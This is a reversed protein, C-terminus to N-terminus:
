KCPYTHTNSSFFYMKKTFKIISTLNEGFTLLLQPTDQLLTFHRPFFHQVYLSLFYLWCLRQFQLRYFCFQMKDNWVIILTLQNLWIQHGICLHRMVLTNCWLCRMVVALHEKRSIESLPTWLVLLTTWSGLVVQPTYCICNNWFLWFTNNCWQRGLCSEKNKFFCCSTIWVHKHFTLLISDPLILGFRWEKLAM